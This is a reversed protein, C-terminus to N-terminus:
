LEITRFCFGSHAFYSYYEKRQTKNEEDGVILYLPTPIFSLFVTNYQAHAQPIALKTYVAPANTPPNYKSFGLSTYCWYM